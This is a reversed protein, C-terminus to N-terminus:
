GAIGLALWLIVSAVSLFAVPFVVKQYYFLIKGNNLRRVYRDFWTGLQFIVIGLATGFIFKNIGFLTQPESAFLNFPWYLPAIFLVLFVAATAWKYHRFTKNQRQLWDIAWLISSLVLAGYWIGTVADDVGYSRLIGLGAGVAITCVPCIASAFQALALFPLALAAKTRM